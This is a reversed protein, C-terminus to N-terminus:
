FAIVSAVYGAGTTDVVDLDKEAEVHGGQGVASSYYAGKAGLTIVVNKVGKELFEDTVSAWGEPSAIENMYRGSLLAAETENVVLHTITPYVSSLLYQAPAPNLLVDVGAMSATRLIQEVTERPIELQAILLDPKVGGALSELTLFDEPLLSLNAGATFLIRNEGFDSEVIIVCVGTPQEEVTRIGSIDVGTQELKAICLPGFEDDGVAGIMRVQIEDEDEASIDPLANDDNPKLHSARYATVASNAGKGGLHKTFSQANLTEGMEPVRDTVTVLSVALGGIIAITCPPMEFGRTKQRM